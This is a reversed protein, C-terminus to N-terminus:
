AIIARCSSKGPSMEFSSDHLGAIGEAGPGWEAGSQGVEVSERRKRAAACAPANGKPRAEVDHRDRDLDQELVHEPVGACPDNALRVHRSQGPPPRARGRLGSGALDLDRERRGPDDHLVEGPDRGDHVQRRHSVRHGFQAAIRGQDVREDGRVKHDVVGDLDISVASGIRKGEVHFALVLSVALAILQQAPGLGGEVVQADHRGARANNM